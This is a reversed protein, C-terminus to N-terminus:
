GFLNRRSSGPDGNETRTRITMPSHQGATNVRRRRPARRDEEEEEGEEGGGNEQRGRDDDSEEKLQAHRHNHGLRGRPTIGLSTQLKTELGETADGFVTRVVGAIAENDVEVKGRPGVYWTIAEDGEEGATTGKVLYGQRILRQLVVETQESPQNQNSPNMSPVTQDANLRSLFKRFMAESLEGGSLTIIAILTTYFGAYSAEGESSQVKSPAIIKSTRLEPPLVSVLIYANSRTTTGARNQSKANQSKAVPIFTLLSSSM